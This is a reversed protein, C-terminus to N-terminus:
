RRPPAKQAALLVAHAPSSVLPAIVRCVSEPLQLSLLLARGSQVYHRASSTSAWRGRALIDELPHGRLADRTAGGHWLSHPVYGITGIGLAVCASHFFSRFASPTYPFVPSLSSASLRLATQLLYIVHPDRVTVWQDPGTKTHRLRLAVGEYEGGLRADKALAVDAACLSLVESIRLYCEFALVTATGALFHGTSAMRVAIGVALPWTLPPWPSPPALNRWGLIARASLRLQHKCRPFFLEIGCKANVVAQLGKGGKAMYMHHIYDCLVEDLAEFDASSEGGGGWWELFRLTEKKYKKLTDPSVSSGFLFRSGM